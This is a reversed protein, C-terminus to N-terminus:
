SRPLARWPETLSREVRSVSRAVDDAEAVVLISFCRDGDIPIRLTKAGPALEIREYETWEGGVVEGVVAVPARWDAETDISVRGETLPLVCLQKSQRVDRHDLAYCAFHASRGGEYALVQDKDGRVM